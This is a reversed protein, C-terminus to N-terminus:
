ASSLRRDEEIEAQRQLAGRWSMPWGGALPGGVLGVLGPLWTEWPRVTVPVSLLFTYGRDGGRDTM